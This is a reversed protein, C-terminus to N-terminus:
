AEFFNHVERASQLVTVRQDPRLAALRKVIAPRRLAPYRFIWWLFDLGLREPCGPKMDPRERGHYQIRRRVVRWLCTWRPLDLFIVTDCAALRREISGGYNGDMIWREGAVLHEVQLAWETKSPEIWGSRWYHADLHILPLGTRAALQRAFSSKGAGGSGIVLIRNM